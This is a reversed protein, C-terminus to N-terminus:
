RTMHSSMSAIVARFFTTSLYSYVPTAIFNLKINPIGTLNIARKYDVEGAFFIWPQTVLRCVLSYLVKKCKARQKRCRKCQIVTKYHILNVKWPSPKKSFILPTTPGRTNDGFHSTSPVQFKTTVVLLLHLFIM